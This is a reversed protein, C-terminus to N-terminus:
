YGTFITESGRSGRGGIQGAHVDVDDRRVSIEVADECHEIQSWGNAVVGVGNSQVLGFARDGEVVDREAVPGFVDRKM